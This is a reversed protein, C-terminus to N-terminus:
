PPDKKERFRLPCGRRRYWVPSMVWQCIYLVLNKDCRYYWRQAPTHTYADRTCIDYFTNMSDLDFAMIEAQFARRTRTPWMVRDEDSMWNYERTWSFAPQLSFYGAAYFRRWVHRHGREYAALVWHKGTDPDYIDYPSGLLEWAILAHSVTWRTYAFWVKRQPSWQGHVCCVFELIQEDTPHSSAFSLPASMADVFIVCM